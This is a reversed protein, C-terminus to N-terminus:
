EAKNSMWNHLKKSCDPCLKYDYDLYDYGTYNDNFYETLTARIGITLIKKRIKLGAAKGDQWREKGCRDCVEKIVTGM